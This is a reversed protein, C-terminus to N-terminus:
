KQREIIERIKQSLTDVKYPKQLIDINKGVIADPSIGELGYGTVFLAPLSSKIERMSKLAEYGNMKPMVVDLIVLDIHDIKEKFLAVGDMGNSTAYVQYGLMQLMMTAVKRLEQDDEVLLITESGTAVTQVDKASSNDVEDKAPLFINFTTGISPRSDVHIFGDHQKVIGYVVSLGLGTGSTKTTYFPEFIKNLVEKEIGTGTDRISLMVYNGISADPYLHVQKEDIYMLDTKLTIRGGSPMAERANMILNLLVQNIQGSDAKIMPLYDKYSISMEINEGIVRHIMKEFDAVLGNLDMIRLELVQKRSFALLQRTFEAAKSAATEIKSCFEFVKDEPSVNLMALQANGLIVGLMNNFDHAIGGALKGIGELKQSQLLQQELVREKSVDLLTGIIAPKRKYLLFSNIAKMTRIEGDRHRVRFTIESTRAEGAFVNRISKRISAIDEPHVFDNPKMRDVIEEHEYGHIQCFTQNVFRFFGDQIIYVGVHSEEIISRYKEESEFLAEEAHKRDTINEITGEYRAIGGDENRVIRAYISIWIKKRDKRYVQTELGRLVEHREIIEKFRTFEQPMVFQNTEAWSVKKVMEEPASYGLMRCLSPNVNIFDGEPTIQFIGEVSNEFISRYKEESKQLANEADKRDTINRIIIVTQDELLPILRAEYFNEMDHLWLSYEFSEAAHNQRVSEAAKRFKNAVQPLPIDYIKIGLIDQRAIFLDSANGAKCDLIKGDADIRFFIDPVAEFTARMESNTQLLEQSSLELSRELMNRDSDSEHYASNVMEIFGRWEDPVVFSEGFFHKLQRKLLSHIKDHHRM